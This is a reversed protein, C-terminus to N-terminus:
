EKSDAKSDVKEKDTVAVTPRIGPKTTDRELFTMKENLSDFLKRVRPDKQKGASQEKYFEIITKFQRILTPSVDDQSRAVDGIFLEIICNPNKSQVMDRYYDSFKNELLDVSAAIKNFADKCRSLKPISKIKDMSSVIVESFKKVDIDPSTTVEYIEYCKTFLTALMTLLYKRITPTALPHTVIAKIDFKTFSWPEFTPGPRNLVWSIPLKEDAPMKPIKDLIHKYETLNECVLIVRKTTDHEKIEPYTKLELVEKVDSSFKSLDNAWLSYENFMKFMPGASMDKLLIAVVKLSARVLAEKTALIEPDGEGNLISNFMEVLNDDQITKKQVKARVSTM